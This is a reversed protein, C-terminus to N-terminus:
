SSGLVYEVFIEIVGATLAATAVTLNISGAASMKVYTSNAADATGPVCAGQIIANASLTAKATATLLSNAASGATTGVAVTASGLSTVATTSNVIVNTIIANQPIVATSAPTIAGIAGGDVAFDFKAHAVRRASIGAATNPALAADGVAGAAIKSATVAGSALDSAAIGTLGSGDGTFGPTATATYSPATLPRKSKAQGM